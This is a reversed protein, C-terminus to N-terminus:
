LKKVIIFIVVVLLLTIAISWIRWFRNEPPCEITENIETNEKVHLVSDPCEVYVTLTDHLFVEKIKIKDKYITITTDKRIVKGPTEVVTKPGPVPVNM